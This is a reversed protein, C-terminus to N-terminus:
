AGARAKLNVMFPGKDYIVYVRQAFVWDEQGQVAELDYKWLLRSMVLRMEAYALNKGICDRPGASFPKSAAKNDNQYRKDYLPHSAPLFRQPKFLEPDTFNLPSHTTAWQYVTVVTGKPIFRGNVVDGPSVRPPTEAAPPYIRLIEEMCAHLYQLSATSKMNIEEESNFASRIEKVLLDYIEPNHTLQFTLGSMATATTESGAVILARANLINEEHTIAKGEKENRLIYTFFDQRANVGLALRKEMKIKALEENENKNKLDDSGILFYLLPRFLPYQRLFLYKSGGKISSFILAVWPHYDSKELSYFPDGFALDGIIDFTLYNYWRVIDVARGAQAHEGLRKMLLDVYNKIYGEQQTLASESFAHALARRQRRHDERFSPLLGVRKETGYFAPVKDFEAQHPRRAFIQPWAISGDIALRNPSIRVMPGYKEHISAMDKALTGKLMNQTLFPLYSAAYLKPGPFGALPHFFVRWIILGVRYAIFLGLILWGIPPRPLQSLIEPLNTM